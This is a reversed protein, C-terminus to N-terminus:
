PALAELKRAPIGGVRTHAEVDKNVVSGPAVVAGEGITVGPLVICRPGLWAGDSITVPATTVPGARHERPGLEHSATLIMVQHGLTVRDGIQIREGLDFTCDADIVCDRGISLNAAFRGDFAGGINPTGRFLTGEGIAFGVGRLLSARLKNGVQLPVLRSVFALTHLRPRIGNTEGGIARLAKIVLSPRSTEVKGSVPASV